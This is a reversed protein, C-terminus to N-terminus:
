NISNRAAAERLHHMRDELWKRLEATRAEHDFSNLAVCWGTSDGAPWIEGNLKASPRVKQSYEDLFALMRPFVEADFWALREKYREIFGDTYILKKFMENMWLGGNPDRPSSNGWEEEMLNFSADFDWAPGCMYKIGDGLGEKHIYLSKPHGIESNLVVNYLLIYDVFSDLDFAEFGRGQSM